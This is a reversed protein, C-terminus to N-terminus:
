PLMNRMEDITQRNSSYRMTVLGADHAAELNAKNDDLYLISDPATGLQDAIKVYAEKQTKVLGLEQASFIHDFAADLLPRMAKDNQIAESTFISVPYRTKLAKFFDFLEQNLAFHDFFVYTPDKTIERHLKNLGGEYREDKPFLLVRSFDSLVRQIM